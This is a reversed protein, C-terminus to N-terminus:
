ANFVVVPQSRWIVVVGVTVRNAVGTSTIVLWALHVPVTLKVAAPTVAPLVPPPVSVYQVLAAQVVSAFSAQCLGNM